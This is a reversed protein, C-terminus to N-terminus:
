IETEKWRYGRINKLKEFLRRSTTAYSSLQVENFLTIEAENPKGDPKKRIFRGILQNCYEWDSVFDAIVGGQIENISVGVKVLPSILISGPTSRLWDFVADREEPSHISYLVKIMHDPYYKGVIAELIMVHLTRTAVILTPWGRQAYDVAQKAILNNRETFTIIAKDYKRELLCWRSEVAYQKDEVEINWLGPLKIPNKRRDLRYEGKEDLEFVPGKFTGKLWKGEALVWAPSDEPAQQTLGNFHGTWNAVKVVNLTPVALRDIEFLEEAEVREYIPGTLGTLALKVQVNDERATDSAAFRFYASSALIMRSWSPSLAYQAEDILLAMFKQIWKTKILEKRRANLIAGTCVVMDKGSDDRDAGGGFKSIHWDPLFQKASEFVQKCLRETPTFYLFRATPFKIKVIAACGCFMATKGGGVTIKNRGIGHSLLALICRKQIAWQDQDLEVALLDDPIDDITIGEFPNALLGDKNIEIGYEWALELVNELHGRQLEGTHIGGVEKIKLLHVWGDWGAPKAELAQALSENGDDRAKEISVRWRKYIQYRDSMWFRDPKYEYHSGIRHLEDKPGSLLLRTATEKIRIAM